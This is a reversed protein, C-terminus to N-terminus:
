FTGWFGTFHGLFRSFLWVWAFGRCGLFRVLAGLFRWVARACGNPPLGCVTPHPIKQTLLFVAGVPAPVRGLVRKFPSTKLYVLKLCVQKGLFLAPLDRLV